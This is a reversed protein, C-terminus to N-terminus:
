HEHAKHLGKLSSLVNEFPQTTKSTTYESFPDGLRKLREQVSFLTFEEPWLDEKVEKWFLPTAVTPVDNGRLSYPAIITKGEAHQVYDVYVRNGRHKKLREVTFLAPEKSVLYHAIFGTFERTERYTFQGEPLPIYVQLGKRGSTKIFSHLGLQDFIEKMMLAGTIAISFHEKSPPDLDFVIESPDTSYITQFPIHFELALQNGLWILTEMNNCLISNIDQDVHKEVFSPAYDPCNKQYFSEGAMGHPFRIVTIARDKLFPLMYPSCHSLFDIFAQKTVLPEEWLPKDPNTIAVSAPLPPKTLNRATCEKVDIDFRFRKFEPHRLQSQYVELYFIEVCIGPNVFVFKEDENDSNQKIVAILAAREESTLGHSFLGIDVVSEGKFVGIHFYGNDKQYATIFCTVTKYNKVKIWDTSRKGKSYTSKIKKAILGEGNQLKIQKWLEDSDTSFPVYQLRSSSKEVPSLPLGIHEFLQLLRKKRDSFKASILAEGRVELLDFALLTAPHEKSLANIKEKTKTRGRKQILQFNGKLPSSLVVLECDLTIPLMQKWADNLTLESLFRVTEPFTSSLETGGRSQLTIHNIDLSAICRFGDYKVEYVWDNGQPPNRHLTPLMPKIM